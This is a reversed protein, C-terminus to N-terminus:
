VGGRRMVVGRGKGQLSGAMTDKKGREPRM